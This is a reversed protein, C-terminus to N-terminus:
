LSFKLKNSYALKDLNGAFLLQINKSEDNAFTYIGASHSILIFGSKTLQEALQSDSTKIFQKSM